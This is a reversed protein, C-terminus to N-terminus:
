NVETEHIFKSYPKPNSDKNWDYGTNPTRGLYDLSANVIKLYSKVRSELDFRSLLVVNDTLEESPNKILHEFFENNKKVWADFDVLTGFGDFKWGVRQTKTADSILKHLSMNTEWSNFVSEALVLHELADKQSPYVFRTDNGKRWNQEAKDTLFRPAFVQPLSSAQQM